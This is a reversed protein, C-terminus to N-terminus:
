KDALNILVEDWEPVPNWLYPTYPSEDNTHLLMYAVLWDLLAQARAGRDFADCTGHEPKLREGPSGSEYTSWYVRWLLEQAEFAAANNNTRRFLVAFALAAGDERAM